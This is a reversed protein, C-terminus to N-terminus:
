ANKILGRHRCVRFFGAVGQSSAMHHHFIPKTLDQKSYSTFLCLSKAVLLSSGTRNVAPAPVLIGERLEATPSLEAKKLEATPSVEAKKLETTPSPCVSLLKMCEKRVVAEEESYRCISFVKYKRDYSVKYHSM